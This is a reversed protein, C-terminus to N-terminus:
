VNKWFSWTIRWQFYLKYINMTIAKQKQNFLYADLWATTLHKRTKCPTYMYSMYLQINTHTHTHTHIHTHANYWMFKNLATACLLVETHSNSDGRTLMKLISSQLINWAICISSTLRGECQKIYMIIIINPICEAYCTNLWTGTIYLIFQM